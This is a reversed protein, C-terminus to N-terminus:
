LSKNIFNFLDIFLPSSTDLLLHHKHMLEILASKELRCEVFLNIRNTFEHDSAAKPDIKIEKIVGNGVTLTLLNDLKLDFKPTTGYIYEWSQLENMSTALENRMVNPDIYNFLHEICWRQSNAKWYEQCMKVAIAQLDVTSEIVHPRLNTVQSRVSPTAKTTIRDAISSKLLSMRKIDADFLLTCHHYSFNQALRAASGSIKYKENSEISRVFMDHRDTIEFDVGQFGVSQLARKMLNLNWKRDYSQRSTIFSINLNGHDHYVCGGGSYRRVVKVSESKAKNIDCELWPNQHRGIVVCPESIWMLLVNRARKNVLDAIYSELALNLFISNSVSFLALDGSEGPLISTSIKRWSKHSSSVLGLLQRTRSSNMTSFSVADSRFIYIAYYKRYSAFILEDKM